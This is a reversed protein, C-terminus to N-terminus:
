QGGPVSPSQREPNATLHVVLRQPRITELVLATPFSVDSSTLVLTNKGEQLDLSRLRLRLERSNMFLFARRPGSFTVRVGTPEVSKILLDSPLRSYEVPITFTRYTIASEHVLVIWLAVALSIATVKEKFNSGLSGRWRRGGPKPHVQQFFQSIVKLLDASGELNWIEGYRAASIIGREESVVLCLADTLESLGM